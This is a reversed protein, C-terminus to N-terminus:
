DLLIEAAPAFNSEMTWVNAKGGRLRLLVFSDYFEQEPVGAKWGQLFQRSPHNCIEEKLSRDNLVELTGSIRVQTGSKMDMFCLEVLPNQKIQEYMSKTTGTHFLIGNEDARYLLMGRVRPQKGETTALYFAPNQNCLEYIQKKDM